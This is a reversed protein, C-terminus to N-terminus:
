SGSFAEWIGLRRPALDEPRKIDVGLRLDAIGPQSTAWFATAEVTEVYGETVLWTLSQEAFLEAKQRTDEIPLANRLTWLHSGWEAGPEDFETGHWGGRDGEPRTPDRKDTYLSILCATILGPDDLKTGDVFSVDAHGAANDFVLAIM